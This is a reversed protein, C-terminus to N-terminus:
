HCLGKAGGVNSPKMVVVLQEAGTSLMPVRTRAFETVQVEGKTNSGPSV